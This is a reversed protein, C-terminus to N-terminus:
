RKEASSSSASPEQDEKLSLSFPAGEGPQARLELRVADIGRNFFYRRLLEMRQQALSRDYDDSLGTGARVEGLWGAEPHALLFDALPSLLETGGAYFLVAGRSFLVEGEYSVSLPDEVAVTAGPLAALEGRLSVPDAKAPPKPAPAACAFLLGTAAILGALTRLTM